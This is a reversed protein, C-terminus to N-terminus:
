VGQYVNVYSRFVMKFLCMLTSFPWKEIGDRRDDRRPGPGCAAVNFGYFFFMPHRWIRHTKHTVVMFVFLHMLYIFLYIYLAMFILKCFGNYIYIMYLVININWVIVRQPNQPQYWNIEGRSLSQLHRTMSSAIPLASWFTEEYMHHTYVCYVVCIYIYICTHIHIHIHISMSKTYCCCMQTHM